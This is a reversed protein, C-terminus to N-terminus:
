VCHKVRNDPGGKNESHGHATATHLSSDLAAETSVITQVANCASDRGTHELGTSSYAWISVCRGSHVM